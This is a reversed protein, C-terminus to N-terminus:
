EKFIREYAFASAPADFDSLEISAAEEFRAYAEANSPPPALTASKEPHKAALYRAIARSEPSHKVPNSMKSVSYPPPLTGILKIDGDYAVPIRGFPHKKIFDESKHEGKFVNVDVLEYPVGLEKAVVAVRRTAISASLGHLKLVM